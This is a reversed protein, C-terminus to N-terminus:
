FGFAWGLSLGGYVILTGDRRGCQGRPECSGADVNLLTAAGGYFRVDFGEKERAELSAELNWWWARDWTRRVDDRPCWIRWWCDRSYFSPHRWAYAGTSPGTSVGFAFNDIVVVRYRELLAFQGGPELNTGVGFLLSMRKSFAVDLSFGYRGFPTGAGRHTAIAVPRNTWVDHDV